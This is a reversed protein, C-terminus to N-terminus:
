SAPSVKGGARVVERDLGANFLMDLYSLFPVFGEFRQPYVPYQYEHFAVAVGERGFAAVDLYEKGFTGSLYTRAGLYKCIQLLLPWGKDSVPLESARVFRCPVGLRRLAPGWSACDLDTLAEHPAELIPLVEPAYSQYHPSKGYLHKLTQVAKPRWPQGDNIRTERILQERSARHTPVTLWSAGHPDKLRARNEEHRPNFQVTDFIVFIDAVMM